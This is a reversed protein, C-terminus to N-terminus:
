SPHRHPLLPVARRLPWLRRIGERLPVLLDDLREITEEIQRSFLHGPEEILLARVGADIANQAPERRVAVRCLLAIGDQALALSQHVGKVPLPAAMKGFEAEVDGSAQPLRLLRGRGQKVAVGKRDIVEENGGFEQRPVGLYDCQFGEHMFQGELTLRDAHGAVAALEEVDRGVAPEVERDGIAGASALRAHEVFTVTPRLLLRKPPRLDRSQEKGRTARVLFSEARLGERDGDGRGARFSAGLEDSPGLRFQFLLLGALRDALYEVERAMRRVRGIRSREKEGGHPIAWKILLGIGQQLHV